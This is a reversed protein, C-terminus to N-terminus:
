RYSLESFPLRLGYRAHGVSLLELRRDPGLAEPPGAAVHVSTPPQSQAVPGLVSAASPATGTHLLAQPVNRVPSMPRLPPQVLTMPGSVLGQASASPLDWAFRRADRAVAASSQSPPRAAFAGARRDEPFEVVQTAVDHAHNDIARWLQRVETARQEAETRILSDVLALQSQISGIGQLLSDPPRAQELRERLQQLCREEGLKRETKEQQLAEQWANQQREFADREKSLALQVERLCTERASREHELYERCTALGSERLERERQFLEQIHEHNRDRAAQELGLQELVACEHAERADKEQLLHHHVARELAERARRENGFHEVFGDQRQGQLQREGVLIERLGAVEGVNGQLAARQARLDQTLKDASEAILDELYKLRKHVVAQLSESAQQERALLAQSSAQQTDRTAGVEALRSHLQELKAHAVALEQGHQEVVGRHRVELHELRQAVADSQAQLAPRDKAFVAHAQKLSEITPGHDTQAAVSGRLKDVKGHLRETEQAHRDVVDAMMREVYALRESVAAVHLDRHEKEKALQEHICGYHADRAKHEQVLRTHLQDVEDRAAAADRSQREASDGLLAELYDLRQKMSTYLDHLADRADKEKAFQGSISTHRSDAERQESAILAQLKDVKSHALMVDRAHRDASDALLKEVSSIRAEWAAHYVERAQAEKAVVAAHASKVAELEKVYGADCERQIRELVVLREALGDREAAGRRQSEQKSREHLEELRTRFEALDCAQTGVLESISREVGGLRDQLIAQARKAGQGEEIGVRLESLQGRVSSLVQEFQALRELTASRHEELDAHGSRARERADDCRRAASTLQEQQAEFVTGLRRIGDEFHRRHAQLTDALRRDMTELSEGVAANQESRARAEGILKEHTSSFQAERVRREQELLGVLQEVQECAKASSQELEDRGRFAEGLAAELGDLRKEFSLSLRANDLIRHCQSPAFPGTGELIARTLEADAGGVKARLPSPPLREHLFTDM